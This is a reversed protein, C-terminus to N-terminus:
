AATKPTAGQLLKYLGLLGGIDQQLSALGTTNPQTTTGGIPIGSLLGLQYQPMKYGWDREEEFQAKDAAIGEATIGRQQQGMNALQNLSDLGFKAAYQRSAEQAQLGALGYQARNSAQNQASTQAFQRSLDSAKQADLGFQAQMQAASLGQGANFQRAAEQAQQASLGYQAALQAANMGQTAGFQRSAETAQQAQLRRAQDTNFQEQAQKYATDYGRGTIQGQIDLLNRAGESEMIAQRSGGYAGAKTLRSADQLRQMQAQRQAEKLQPDLSTQLYPNMYRQVDATAMDQSGFTTAAYDTPAKFQNTFQTGSTPANYSFGPTYSQPTYAAVDQYQNGFETPNYGAQALGSIGAFAQQQLPSAGATLPGTYAQYPQAAMAAGQGLAGTVYDGAWPSLTNTSSSGFGTATTVGGDAFRRVGDESQKKPAQERLRDMMKMLKDAGREVNGGGVQAVKNRPVYAEGNAVAAPQQGDITTPISDSTETGPGRIAQAGLSQHLAQLGQERDGNGAGRVSAGNMVFGGSELHGNFEPVKGGDAMAPQQPKNWTIPTEPVPAQAPQTPRPLAALGQAQTQAAAQAAPVDGDKPVFTTDSFYRRGASGPVRNPDPAYPVQERVATSKPVPKSYGGTQVKNGGMAGYLAAAATGLGAFNIKGTAPDYIYPKFANVAADGFNKKLTNLIGPADAETVAPAEYGLGAQPWYWSKTAPDWALATDAAAYDTFVWDAPDEAYGPDGTYAWEGTTDDYTFDAM